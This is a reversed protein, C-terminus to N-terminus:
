PQAAPAIRLMAFHDALATVFAADLPAHGVLLRTWVAGILLDSLLGVDTGAPLEGRDVARQFVSKTTQSRSDFFAAKLTKPGDPDGQGEAILGSLLAAAPGQRYTEFLASVMTHIDGRLSGTDSEIGHRPVIVEYLQAALHAKSPWRRYITQKGVGARRAIAEVTAGGFGKEDFLAAAAALVSQQSRHSRPRGPSRPEM